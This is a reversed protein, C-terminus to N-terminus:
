NINEIKKKLNLYKLKYKKYKQKHNTKDRLKGDGFQKKTNIIKPRGTGPKRTLLQELSSRKPQELSFRKPQEAGRRWIRQDSGKKPVYEDIVKQVIRNPNLQRIEKISRFDLRYLESKYNIEGINQYIIPILGIELLKRTTIKYIKINGRFDSFTIFDTFLHINDKLLNFVILNDLLVNDSTFRFKVEESLERIMVMEPDKECDEVTGKIIDLKFNFGKTNKIYHIINGIHSKKCELLEDIDNNTLNQNIRRHRIINDETSNRYCVRCLDKIQENNLKNMYERIILSAELESREIHKKKLHKDDLQIPELQNVIRKFEEDIVEFNEIARKKIGDRDSSYFCIDALWSGNYGTLIKGEDDEIVVGATKYNCISSEVSKM